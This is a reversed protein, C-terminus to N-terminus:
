AEEEDDLLGPVAVIRLWGGELGIEPVLAEVFPILRRGHATDLELLDQYPLHLVSVVRGVDTEDATRAMLGILERDYFEDARGPREDVEVDAVLRTGQVSEATTRDAVEGFRVLLGGAHARTSVVTFSRFSDEARLRQGSAFRRDPEDTRLEIGVEGRLGHARGIVGVVVEVTDSM